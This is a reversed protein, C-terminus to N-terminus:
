WVPAFDPNVVRQDKPLADIAALDDADLRAALPIADLNSQQSELRSAKPIPVVLPQRLLWALAVQTASASYKAGIKALVANDHLKGQALPSYAELVIQRSQCWDVLPKQSLLVHYEVQLAAPTEGLAELQKMLAVPFNAVGWARILGSAKASKLVALAGELDMTPNPWHILFLDLYDTKLSALSNELSRHLPEPELSDWWVKSTLFIDGRAIGSAQIAAGVEAENGYRVATDVHRYGLSLAGEVAKQGEPGTLKFTGLGLKPIALRPTTEIPVTM